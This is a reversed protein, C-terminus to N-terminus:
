YPLQLSSSLSPLPPSALVEEAQCLVATAVDTNRDYVYVDIGEKESGTKPSKARGRQLLCEESGVRKQLKMTPPPGPLRDETKPTRPAESVSHMPRLLFHQLLEPLRGVQHRM